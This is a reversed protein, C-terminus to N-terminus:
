SIAPSITSIAPSAGPRLIPSRTATLGTASTRDNRESRRLTPRVKALVDVEHSRRRLLGMHLAPKRAIEIRNRSLANANRAFRGQSRSREGFRERYAEVRHTSRTRHLSLPAHNEACPRDAQQRQQSGPERPHGLDSHDIDSRRRKGKRLPKARVMDEIDRRAIFVEASDGRLAGEVNGELDGSRSRSQGGSQQAHM